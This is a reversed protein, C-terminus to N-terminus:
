SGPADSPGLGESFGVRWSPYRLQWGLVRKAKANSSGRVTTMMSVVVDGALARGLWTPVRWPPPAGIARAFEPLWVSVEAPEDDVANYVGAPGGEVALAAVRAADEVHTFSWVGTGGGIIPFMRRQVLRTVDGDRGLSTAPGYLSGYRLVIGTLDPAGSVMAELQRIANITRNMQRPPHPDLPDEETKVQGGERANPWGTYSQAVFRRAGAARAAALLYSTGEVRLRNTLAFSDDFNKFDRVGALATMQHVIADPRVAAVADMVADRQLGDLMVPEAGAARLADMKSRTRTSATVRHGAAVLIPVLRGGVAGGAGAFFINM